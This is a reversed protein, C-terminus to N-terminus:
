SSEKTCQAVIIFRHESDSFVGRQDIEEQLTCLREYNREVSFEPFSWQIVKAWYVIAGVDYFQLRPFCEVAYQVSFGCDRFRPLESELSFTPHQPPKENIRTELLVCNRSGVQQTVFVGGPKLIRRVEHLNYSSHRNIVLDFREAAIPLQGDERVPYVQVGLPVLTEMCLQINPQWTETVSTKEYPHNLSLLFEGGGTGMDLLSDAPHLHEMVISKYDWPMVDFQWRSDLHSFDWGQFPYKEEEIWLEKLKNDQM